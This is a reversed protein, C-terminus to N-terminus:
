FCMCCDFNAAQASCQQETKPVQYNPGSFAISRSPLAPQPPQTEHQPQRRGACHSHAISPRQLIAKHCCSHHKRKTNSLAATVVGVRAPMSVLACASAPLRCPAALCPRRRRRRSPRQSSCCGRHRSSWSPRSRLLRSPSSSCRRNLQRRATPPESHWLTRQASCGSRLCRSHLSPAAASPPTQWATCAPRFHM